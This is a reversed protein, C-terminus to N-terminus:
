EEKRFAKDTIEHTIKGDEMEVLKLFLTDNDPDFGKQRALKKYYNAGLYHTAGGAGQQTLKSNKTYGLNQLRRNLASSPYGYGNDYAIEKETKGKRIEEKLQEDTIKQESM